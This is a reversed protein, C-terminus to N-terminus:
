TNKSVLSVFFHECLPGDFIPKSRGRPCRKIEFHALLYRFSELWIGTAIKEGFCRHFGSGFQLNYPRQGPDFANPNDMVLPDYNAAILNLLLSQGSKFRHHHASENRQISVVLDSKLRRKIFPTCPKQRHIEQIIELAESADDAALASEFTKYLVSDDLIADLVVVMSRNITEIAGVLVGMVNLVFAERTVGQADILPSQSPAQKMLMQYHKSLRHQVEIGIVNAKRTLFHNKPQYFISNFLTRLHTVWWSYAGTKMNLVRELLVHSVVRASVADVFDVELEGHISVRRQTFYQDMYQRCFVPILSDAQHFFPQFLTKLSAHSDRAAQGEDLGLVFDGVINQMPGRYISEVSAAPDELIDRNIEYANVLAFKGLNVVPVYKVLWRWFPLQWKVQSFVSMARKVLLTTHWAQMKFSFPKSIIRTTDAQATEKATKNITKNIMKNTPGSLQGEALSSLTDNSDSEEGILQHDVCMFGTNYAREWTYLASFHSSARRKDALLWQSFVLMEFALLTMPRATDDQSAHSEVRQLGINPQHAEVSDPPGLILFRNILAELEVAPNLGKSERSLGRKIKFLLRACRSLLSEYDWSSRAPLVWHRSLDVSDEAFRCCLAGMTHHMASRLGSRASCDTEILEFPFSKKTALISLAQNYGMTQGRWDLEPMVWGKRGIEVERWYHFTHLPQWVVPVNLLDFLTLLVRAFPCDPLAKIKPSLIADQDDNSVPAAASQVVQATLSEMSQM